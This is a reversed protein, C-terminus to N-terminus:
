HKKFGTGDRPPQWVNGIYLILFTSTLSAISSVKYLDVCAIVGGLASSLPALMGSSEKAIKLLEYTGNLTIKAYDKAALNSRNFRQRLSRAFNTGRYSLGAQPTNHGTRSSILPSPARSPSPSYTRLSDLILRLRNKKQGSM